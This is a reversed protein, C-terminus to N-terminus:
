RIATDELGRRLAKAFTTIDVVFECVFDADVTQPCTQRNECLKCGGQRVVANLIGKLDRRPLDGFCSLFDSPDIADAKPSEPFFETHMAALFESTIPYGMASCIVSNMLCMPCQVDDTPLDVAEGNFIEGCYFCGCPQKQKDKLYLHCDASLRHAEYLVEKTFM